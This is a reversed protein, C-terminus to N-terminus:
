RNETSRKESKYIECGGASSCVTANNSWSAPSKVITLWAPKTGHQYVCTTTYRAGKQKMGAIRIFEYLPQTYVYM